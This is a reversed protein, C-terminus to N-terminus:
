LHKNSNNKAEDLAKGRQQVDEMRQEQIVEKMQGGLEYGNFLLTAVINIANQDKSFPSTGSYTELKIKFVKRDITM